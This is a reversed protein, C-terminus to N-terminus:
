WADPDFYKIVSNLSDLKNLINDDLHDPQVIILDQEILFSNNNRINDLMPERGPLLLSKILSIEAENVTSNHQSSTKPTDENVYGIEGMTLDSHNSENVPPM